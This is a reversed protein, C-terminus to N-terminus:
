QVKRLTRVVKGVPKGDLSVVARILYDGPPLADINFGGIARVSDENKAPGISTEATALSTGDPTQTVDLDVRVKGGKPVGAVELYAIAVGEDKFEMRRLFGSGQAQTGLLLSSLKLPDARPVEATLEYDVTGTRGAADVAAVRVRYAGAPATVASMVPNKLEEPKATWQKKLTNKEDFLGVSAEKLAAGDVPEFETYVTVEPSGPTPAPYAISRLPLDRFEAATRLMDRPAAAHSPIKPLDIAPRTRVKVHDRTSKLEVRLPQGAHEAADPEFTLSYYTSTERLMRAIAAQPSATIRMFEGGTAGALSEFGADQNTSRNAMVETLHFMYLDVNATSALANINQFDEPRVPCMDSTAGSPASSGGLATRNRGGVDVIKNAPLSLGGSFIMLTTPTAGSLSIMTGLAALVHTTRCQADAETESTSGKGALQDVALKVKTADDTPRINIQGQPTLVGVLDGPALENTLQRVADKLQGERGAAISDDDILMYFVRGNGGATNSAYPAPLGARGERSSAKASQSVNLSLIPRPKGNIRLALEESKLDAVQQGDEGMARFFLRLPPANKQAHLSAGPPLMAAAAAGAALWWRWAKKRMTM